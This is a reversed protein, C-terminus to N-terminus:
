HYRSMFMCLYVALSSWESPNEFSEPNYTFMLKKIVEKAKDVHVDSATFLLLLKLMYHLLRCLVCVTCKCFVGGVWM